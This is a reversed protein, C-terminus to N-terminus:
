KAQRYKRYGYGIIPVGIIVGIVFPILGGILGPVVFILLFGAAQILVAKNMEQKNAMIGGESGSLGGKTRPGVGSCAKRILFAAL